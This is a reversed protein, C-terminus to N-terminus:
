GSATLVRLLEAVDSPGDIRFRARSEGRGVRVTVDDAGLMAFAEEDTVDDGFFAIPRRALRDSLALLAHGKTTSRALLEVVAHGPKVFAGPVQSAADTLHETAARALEPEALRTHLVVSAPKRELWAGEGATLVAAAGLAALEGLTREEAADLQLPDDDGSELGHSGIVHVGDPFTFRERLSRLSRGSVVAVVTRATLVHLLAEVGDGLRADDAHDVIPALVGDVDFAILGSALLPDLESALQEITVAIPQGHDPRDGNM